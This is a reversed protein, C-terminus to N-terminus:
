GPCIENGKLQNLDLCCGTPLLQQTPGCPRSARGPKPAPGAAPELETESSVRCNPSTGSHLFPSQPTKEMKCFTSKIIQRTKCNAKGKRVTHGSQWATYRTNRSHPHRATGPDKRLFSPHPCLLPSPQRQSLASVGYGRWGASVVHISAYVHVCAGVYTCAYVSKKMSGISRKRKYGAKEQFM